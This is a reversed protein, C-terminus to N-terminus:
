PPAGIRAALRIAVERMERNQPQERVILAIDRYAADRKSLHLYAVARDWRISADEPYRALYRSTVGIETRYWTAEGLLTVAFGFREVPVQWTPDFQAARRFYVIARQPLNSRILDDGRSVLGIAIWSHFIVGISVVGSIALVFRRAMGLAHVRSEFWSRM